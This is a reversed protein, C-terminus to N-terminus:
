FDRPIFRKARRIRRGSAMIKLEYLRNEWYTVRESIEKLDVYTLNRNAIAYSKVRGSALKKEADRWLTLMEEAYELEQKINSM